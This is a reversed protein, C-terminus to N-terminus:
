YISKSGYAEFLHGNHCKLDGSMSMMEPETWYGEFHIPIERAETMQTFPQLYRLPFILPIM